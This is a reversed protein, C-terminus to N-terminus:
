KHRCQKLYDMWKYQKKIKIIMAQSYNHIIRNKYEQRIQIDSNEGHSFHNSPHDKKM